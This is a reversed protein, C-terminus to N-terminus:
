KDKKGFVSVQVYRGPNAKFDVLLSDLDAVAQNLNVYLSDNHVLKGMTGEQNAISEMNKNINEMMVQAKRLTQNLELNKLSDAFVNTSNIMRRTDSLLLTLSDSSRKFALLTARLVDDNKEIMLRSSNALAQVSLLTHNLIDTSSKLSDILYNANGITAEVGEEYFSELTDGDQYFPEQLGNLNLQIANGGMIGTSILTATTGHGLKIDSNIDISVLLKNDDKQLLTIDDVRGVSLGNILVPNSPKLEGIRDFVLYYENTLQRFDIGKLFNFGFYLITISVIALVGVKFEKSIHV